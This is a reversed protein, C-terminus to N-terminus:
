CLKHDPNCPFMKVSGTLQVGIFPTTATSISNSDDIKLGMFGAESATMYGPATASTDTEVAMGSIIFNQIRIPSNSDFGFKAASITTDVNSDNSYTVTSADLALYPIQVRGSVGKLVLWEKNTGSMRNNFSLAIRCEAMPISGGCKSAGAADANLRWELSLGVGDGGMVNSLDNNDLPTMEGFAQGTLMLMLLTTVRIM